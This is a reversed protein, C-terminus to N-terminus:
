VIHQGHVLADVPVIGDPGVIFHLHAADHNLSLVVEQPELLTEPGLPVSHGPYPGFSEIRISYEARRSKSRKFAYVGRMIHSVARTMSPTPTYVRPIVRRLSLVDRVLRPQTRNNHTNVVTSKPLIHPLMSTLDIMSNSADGAPFTVYIGLAVCVCHIIVVIPTRELIPFQTPLYEHLPM